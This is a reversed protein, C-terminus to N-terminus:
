SAAGLTTLCVLDVAKLGEVTIGLAFTFGEKSDVAGEDAGTAFPLAPQMRVQKGGYRLSVSELRESYSVWGHLLPGHGNVGSDIDCRVAGLWSLANTSPIIVTVVAETADYLSADHM